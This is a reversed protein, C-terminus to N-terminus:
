RKREKIKFKLGNKNVGGVSNSMKARQLDLAREASSIDNYQKQLAKLQNQKAELARKKMKRARRVEYMAKKEAELQKRSKSKKQQAGFSDDEQEEDDDDEDEDEDEEELGRRLKKQDERDDAFVLKRAKKEVPGGIDWEDESDMEEKKEEEGDLVGSIGEQVRVEEEAKVLARRVREGVTRLYGADQTKLLKIADHSLGQATASDRMGTGHKGKAGSHSSMMGFAFEDPNRDRVKEELRKIKQKKQTYDKARLSYDKHKELIGWKERGQLQGRERHNRRQVANRMSSM